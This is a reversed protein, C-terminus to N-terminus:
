GGSVFDDNYAVVTKNIPNVLTVMSDFGASCFDVVLNVTAM